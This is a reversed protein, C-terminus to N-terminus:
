HAPISEEGLKQQIRDVLPGAWRGFTVWAVLLVAAGALHPLQTLWVARDLPFRYVVVIRLVADTLLAIGTGATLLRHALRFQPVQQWAKEWALTRAPDGKTAMPKSGELTLPRSTFASGIVYLAAIGSYFSPRILLLRPTRLWFLFGISATVELLMLLGVADLKRRRITNIATSGVAIVFGLNLGWFLSLGLAKMVWMAVLPGFIDIAYGLLVKRETM